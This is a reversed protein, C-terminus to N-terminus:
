GKQYVDNGAQNVRLLELIMKVSGVYYVSCGYIGNLGPNVLILLPFKDADVYMRRAASEATDDSVYCVIKAESFANVAREWASTKRIAHNELLFCIGAKMDRLSAAYLSMENLVHETPEEGPKLFALIYVGSETLSSIQKIEGNDEVEFDELENSVLLEKGHGTRMRLEQEEQQGPELCIKCESALQDGGPLRSTTLLRYFGPELELWLEEREFKLEQYNLTVFGDRRYQGITWNQYYNWEEGDQRKLVLVAKKSTKTGEKTGSIRVFGGNRYIEAKRTVPNLRAPIGLTRCIAVCLINRSVPNGFRTKLTGAPVSLLTSYDDKEDYRIREEIRDGILGPDKKFQEKEAASFCKHIDERFPTIEEFYIRPCLIYRIYLELEGKEEWERRYVSAERLHSELVDAKVDRYDKENLCHLMSKRDPNGDKELFEYIQSFNGAALRLIKEEEPYKGALEERYYGDIRKERLNASAQLRQRNKAKQQKTLHVQYLVSEKPAKIDIDTWKGLGKRDGTKRLVLLVEERDKVCVIKEGWAAGKVAWLHVTGMGLCLSVKGEEDTRLSAVSGYEGSNLVEALVKAKGAPTGDEQTVKIWLEKTKAYRATINHYYLGEERTICTPNKSDKYGSFQRTHIMVARSSANVFWGRDLVEEPECAGLFHWEGDIYVEAWAHNDDCHAWKPTYVQRAPIGVSRLATVAFTSEEGCRGKGSRYMTMPSVTRIDSAEYSGNEACWYNVELVAERLTKKEIRGILQGYFFRRCDEISESNIRYYLVHHLFIEEPLKRCWEMTEYLMLGHQVFGLFVEFEYTGADGLPMTGYFFKMLLQEKPTCRKLKWEIEKRLEEPLNTRGDYVQRVYNKFTDGFM